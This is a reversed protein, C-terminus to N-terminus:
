AGTVQVEEPLWFWRLRAFDEGTGDVVGDPLPDFSAPESLLARAEDIYDALRSDAEHHRHSEFRPTGDDYRIDRLSMPPEPQGDRHHWRATLADFRYRPLLKWGETAVLDM